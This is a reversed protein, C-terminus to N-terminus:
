LCMCEPYAKNHWLNGPFISINRFPVLLKVFVLVKNVVTLYKLITYM